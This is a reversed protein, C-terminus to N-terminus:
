ATKTHLNDRKLLLSVSNYLYCEDDLRGYHEYIYNRLEELQQKTADFCTIKICNDDLREVNGCMKHIIYIQLDSQAIDMIPRNDRLHYTIKEISYTFDGLCFHEAIKEVIKGTADPISKKGDLTVDLTAGTPFVKVRFTTQQQYISKGNM